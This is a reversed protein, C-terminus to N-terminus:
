VVKYFAAYTCTNYGTNTKDCLSLVDDNNEPFNLHFMM